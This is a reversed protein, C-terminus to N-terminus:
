ESGRIRRIAEDLPVGTEPNKLYEEYREELIKKQWEYVPLEIPEMDLTDLIDSVLRWREDVSLAEIDSKVVDKLNVSM